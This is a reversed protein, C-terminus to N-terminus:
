GLMKWVRLPSDAGRPPRLARGLVQDYMSDNIQHLLIVDTAMSMDMGCGYHTVNILLAVKPESAFTKMRANISAGHGKLAFHPVGHDALATGVVTDMICSNDSFILVKSEGPSRALHAVLRKFNEKKDLTSNFGVGGVVFEGRSADAGAATAPPEACVMLGGRDLPTKCMPCTSRSVVSSASVTEMWRTICKLCYASYCCPTLTKNAFEEYCIACRDASVIRERVNALQSEIRELSGRVRAARAEREAPNVYSRSLTYQLQARVNAGSRQLHEIAAAIINNETDRRSPALIELATDLDGAEIRELVASPINGHLVRQHLPRHCRVEFVRPEPVDFSERIFANDSVFVLHQFYSYCHMSSFNFMGRICSSAVGFSARNVVHTQAGDSHLYMLRMDSGGGYWAPIMRHASATVLWIMTAAYGIDHCSFRVTDAEDIVIRKLTVRNESVCEMLRPLRTNTVLIVDPAAAGGALSAEVDDWECARTFRVVRLDAAHLDFHDSWHKALNHPVVVVTVPLCSVEFTQLAYVNRSVLNVHRRAAPPAHGSRVLGSVVFTKGSGVKDALIGVNSGLVEGNGIDLGSSAEEFEGMARVMALQHPKLGPHREAPARPHERGVTKVAIIGSTM